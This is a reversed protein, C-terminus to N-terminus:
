FLETVRLRCTAPLYGDRTGGMEPIYNYGDPALSADLRRPAAHPPTFSAFSYSFNKLRGSCGLRRYTVTKRRDRCDSILESERLISDM